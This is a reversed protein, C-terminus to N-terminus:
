EDVPAEFDQGEEGAQPLMSQLYKIHRLQEGTFNNIENINESAVLDQSRISGVAANLYRVFQEAIYKGGPYGIHTYDKSAWKRKVFEPMSNSGGMADYTNWFGVQCEKAAAKQAEIMAIVAPMTVAQGNQMTSRDGVSMVVIASSPFCQKVYDILRVLQRGYHNYDTIDASMANLGYQLIILDYDMYEAFDCNINYDTGFLAIGSNSRVSYNHVSVGVSDELVTGYGIFGKTGTLAVNLKTIDKEKITIKQVYEEPSPRFTKKISDNVTVDITTSDRNVFFLSATNTSEIRHRFKVGCYETKAKEAPVSLIGSIYFWDKYEEPVSKRKIIDYHTWGDHTHKVTGRYKSLPTAFPVFGVGSGGYELQLQERMDATIIDAEIFSDGLVAIRVPRLATEYALSNYFRSMMYSGESFDEIAVISPDDIKPITIAPTDAEVPRGEAAATLEARLSSDIVHKGRSDPIGRESHRVLNRNFDELYATDLQGDNRVPIRNADNYVIVDSLISARKIVVNGVRFSPIFSVCVLLVIVLATITFSKKTYDRPQPM